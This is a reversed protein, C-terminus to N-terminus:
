RLRGGVLKIRLMCVVFLGFIMVEKWVLRVEKVLLVVVMNVEFKRFFLGVNLSKVVRVLLVIILNGLMESVVSCIM